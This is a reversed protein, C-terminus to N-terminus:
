EKKVLDAIYEGNFTESMRGDLYFIEYMDDSVKEIHHIGVRALQGSSVELNEKGVWPLISYETRYSGYVKKTLSERMAQIIEYDTPMNHKELQYQKIFAKGAAQAENWQTAYELSDDKFKSDGMVENKINSWSYKFIGTGNHWDDYAKFMRNFEEKTAGADLVDNLFSSKSKYRGKALKEEFQNEVGIGFGKEGNSKAGVSSYYKNVLGTYTNFLELDTGAKNRAWTQADEYSVGEDHMKIVEAFVSGTMADKQEKIRREEDRRMTAAMQKIRNMRRASMGSAGIRSEGKYNTFDLHFHGGTSYDSPDDYENLVKLGPFAREMRDALINRSSEDLAALKDSAIDVGRGEYHASGPAHGSYDNKTSTIYVDDIDYQNLIGTIGKIGQVASEQMGEFSVGPNFTYKGEPITGKANVYNNIFADQAEPDSINNKAMQKAIETDEIYEQESYLTAELKTRLDPSIKKRFYSLRDEALEYNNRSVADNVLVTAYRDAMEKEVKKYQEEPLDPFMSKYLGEMIPYNELLSEGDIVGNILNDASQDFVNQKYKQTEQEQFKYLQVGDTALTNDTIRKFAQEGLKYRIGSKAYIRESLVNADKLFDNIVGVSNSGQRKQMYDVKLKGLELNFENTAKAVRLAENQEQEKNLVDLGANFAKGITGYMNAAARNGADNYEVGVRQGSATPNVSSQNSRVIIKTM